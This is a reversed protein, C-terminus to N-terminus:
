FEDFEPFEVAFVEGFETGCLDALRVEPEADRNTAAVINLSRVSSHDVRFQYNVVGDGREVSVDRIEFESGKRIVRHNVHDVVDLQIFNEDVRKSYERGVREFREAHFLRVSDVRAQVVYDRKAVLKAGVPMTAISWEYIEDLSVGSITQAKIPAAFALAGILVFLLQKM